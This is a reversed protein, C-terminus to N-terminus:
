DDIASLDIRPVGLLPTARRMASETANSHRLDFSAVSVELRKHINM